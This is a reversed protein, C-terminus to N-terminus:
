NKYLYHFIYNKDEGQKVETGIYNTFGLHKYIEMNRTEEQDVSLSLEQFGRKRLDKEAFHFLRSFFGKKEQEKNTRIGCLYARNQTVIEEIDGAEKKIGAKKIVATIDCIIEGALLGIYTIRTGKRAEEKYEEKAEWYHANEKHKNAEEIWRKEIEELTAIKCIYSNQEQM